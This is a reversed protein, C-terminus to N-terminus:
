NNASSWFLFLTYWSFFTMEHIYVLGFALQTQGDTKCMTINTAAKWFLYEFWVDCYVYNKHWHVFDQPHGDDLYFRKLLMEVHM